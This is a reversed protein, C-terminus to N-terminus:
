CTGATPTAAGPGRLSAAIGEVVSEICFSSSTATVSVTSSLGADLQRLTEASAGAYSGNEAFYSAMTTSADRVNAEAVQLAADNPTSTILNAADNAAGCGTLALALAAAAVVHRM